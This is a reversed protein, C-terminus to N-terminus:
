WKFKPLKINRNGGTQKRTPTPANYNKEVVRTKLNNKKEFSEAINFAHSKSSLEKYQALKWRGSSNKYEVDYKKM